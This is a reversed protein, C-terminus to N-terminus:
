QTKAKSPVDRFSETKEAFSLLEMAKTAWDQNRASDIGTTNPRDQDLAKSLAGVAEEDRAYFFCGQMEDLSAFGRLCTAVVYLGAALYEFLKMPSRGLNVPEASLPLLGVSFHSLHKPLDRYAMPGTLQINSPLGLPVSDTPGVLSIHLEPFAKAMRAVVSWNFRHDLAGVYVAGSRQGESGTLQFRKYEVGNPIITRPQGNVAPLCDLVQKSTASVADFYQIYKAQLRHSAGDRYLDTPRYLSTGARLLLKHSVMLPQDVFIFRPREMGVTGMARLLYASTTYQAPLVTRPILHKVGVDDVRMGLQALESRRSQKRSLLSHALSFPTSIHAVDYGMHAIERALHHSGVKFVGDDYTHSIFLVSGYSENGTSSM